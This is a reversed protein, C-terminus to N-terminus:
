CSRGKGAQQAVLVKAMWGWFLRSLKGLVASFFCSDPCVACRLGWQLRLRLLGLALRPSVVRLVM